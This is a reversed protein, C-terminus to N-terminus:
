QQWGQRLHTRFGNILAQRTAEADTLKAVELRDGQATVRARLLTDVRNIDNVCGRLPNVPAPYADIGVLLAYVTRSM